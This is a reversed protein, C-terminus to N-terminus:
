NWYWRGLEHLQRGSHWLLMNFQYKYLKPLPHKRIMKWAHPLKNLRSSNYKRPELSSLRKFHDSSCIEVMTLGQSCQTEPFKINMGLLHILVVNSNSFNVPNINRTIFMPIYRIIILWYNYNYNYNYNNTLLQSIIILYIGINMVLFMLWTSKLLEFTTNICKSPMFM